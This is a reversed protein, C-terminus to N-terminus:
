EILAAETIDGIGKFLFIFFIIAGVVFGVILLIFVIIPDAPVSFGFGTALDWHPDLVLVTVFMVALSAVLPIFYFLTIKLAQFISVM